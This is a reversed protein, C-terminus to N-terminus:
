TVSPLPNSSFYIIGLARRPIWGMGLSGTQAQLHLFQLCLPQVSVLLPLLRATFVQFPPTPHAKSRSQTSSFPSSFLKNPSSITHPEMM